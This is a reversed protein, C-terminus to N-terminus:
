PTSKEQSEWGVRERPSIHGTNFGVGISCRGLGKRVHVLLSLKKM